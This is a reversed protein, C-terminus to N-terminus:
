RASRNRDIEAVGACASKARPGQHKCVEDFISRARDSQGARVLAIGLFWGAEDATSPDGKLTRARELTAAGETNQGARLQVAGLALAAIRSTQHREFMAQLDVAAAAVDGKDAKDLAASIQDELSVRTPSTGRVTLDVDGPPIAPRDVVFVSPIQPPTVRAIQSDPVPTRPAKPIMLFWLLGAAAALGAGWWLYPHARRVTQGAAIRARIRSAAEDGTDEVLVLALDAVLQQCTPCSKVNARVRDAVADDLVGEEAALVLSSDPCVSGDASPQWGIALLAEREEADLAPRTRADNTM